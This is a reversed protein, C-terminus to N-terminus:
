ETNGILSAAKGTPACIIVKPLDPNDGHTRLIKESQLSAAKIFASKGVGAGGHIILRIPACKIAINKRARVHNKMADVVVRLADMQEPALRQTIMKMENESPLTIVKFKAKDRDKSDDQGLNGTYSISEFHPDDTVGEQQDDENQQVNQSALTDYLHMPRSKEIDETTNAAMFDEGPFICEKNARLENIREDYTDTCSKPNHRHFDKTENRWNCFLLLESYHEEHGEKKKSNHYRLVLPIRRLGMVGLGEQLLITKPLNIDTNFMMQNSLEHSCGDDDFSCNKPINQKKIYSTLFQAVCIKELSKPRWKYYDFQCTSPQYLGTRGSIRVNPKSTSEENDMEEEDVDGTDEESVYVEGEESIKKYFVTRNEPFGTQIFITSINSDKLKLGPLIRYCSESEGVQRNFLYSQKLEKVKEQVSKGANATLTEKLFKTMGTEDKNVYSVIYTIVAYPDLAIQVDMNANWAELWEKNFNNTFRDKVDRQLVLISGSSSMSLFRMYDEESTEIARLFEHFTMNDDINPQELFSRAKELTETGRKKLAEREEKNMDAPLPRAVLTKPSPLKPFGYRSHYVYDIFKRM